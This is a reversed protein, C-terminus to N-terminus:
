SKKNNRNKCIGILDEGSEFYPCDVCCGDAFSSDGYECLEQMQTVFLFGENTYVPEKIFDPFIPVPEGNKREYEEYYGYRLEFTHGCLNIIKYLDGDKIKNM